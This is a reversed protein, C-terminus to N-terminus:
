TKIIENIDVFLSIFQLRNTLIKSYWAFEDRMTNHRDNKNYEHIFRM